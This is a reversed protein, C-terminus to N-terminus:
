ALAPSWSPASMLGAPLDKMMKIVLFKVLVMKELVVSPRGVGLEDLSGSPLLKDVRREVDGDVKKLVWM